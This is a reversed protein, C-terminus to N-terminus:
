GETEKESETAPTIAAKQALMGVLFAGVGHVPCSADALFESHLSDGNYQCRGNCVKEPESM